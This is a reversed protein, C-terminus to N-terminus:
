TGVIRIAVSGDLNYITKLIPAGDPIEKTSGVLLTNKSQSDKQWDIRRFEYRGFSHHSEFSGSSNEGIKQYEEPPFKLYFLFFMYSKDLPNDDSIIIKDYKDQQVLVEEVAERYGYQWDASYYYNQQVFYQNLYYSFNFVFIVAFVIFAAYKLRRYKNVYVFSYVLGIASLIQFTPLFNLTRVAHPVGTTISAPIPALLFWTLILLKTKRNFDSFLLLYIGFLIFPVEFLYLLGMN